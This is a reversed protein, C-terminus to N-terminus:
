WKSSIHGHNSKCPAVVYKLVNKSRSSLKNLQMQNIEFAV